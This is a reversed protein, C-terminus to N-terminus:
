HYHDGEASLNCNYVGVCMIKNSRPDDELSMPKVHNGPRNAVTASSKTIRKNSAM